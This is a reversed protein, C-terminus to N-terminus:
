SIVSSSGSTAFTNNADRIIFVNWSKNVMGYRWDQCLGTATERCQASVGLGNGKILKILCRAQRWINIDRAQM